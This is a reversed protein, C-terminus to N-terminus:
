STTALLEFWVKKGDDRHSEIGWRDALMELLRAGFGRGAPDDLGELPPGDDGVEVRVRRHGFEVCVFVMGQGHVIANTVLESVLATANEVLQTSFTRALVDHVARRAARVSTPDRQLFLEVVADLNTTPTCM